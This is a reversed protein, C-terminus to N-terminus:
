QASEMNEDLWALVEATKWVTRSTGKIRLPRPFRGEKAFAYITSRSLTTLRKVDQLDVVPPTLTEM